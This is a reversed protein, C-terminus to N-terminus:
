SDAYMIRLSKWSVLYAQLLAEQKDPTFADWEKKSFGMDETSIDEKLIDPEGKALGVRFTRM